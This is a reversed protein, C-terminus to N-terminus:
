KKVKAHFGAENLATVVATTEIGSGKVTVTKTARDVTVDKSIDGLVKQVATVCQGCCLHVGTVTVEDAKDGKKAGSDPFAIKQDGHKATGHFGAAALAEIGAKVADADAAQFTVTKAARDCAAGSVGKVDGLAKGVDTVCMGCCLHVGTVKVEGAQLGTATWAAATLVLVSGLVTKRM